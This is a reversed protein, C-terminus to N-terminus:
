FFIFVLEKKSKNRYYMNAYDISYLFSNNMDKIANLIIASSGGASVGVELIKKPKSKRIIGNLLARQKYSMESVTHNGNNYTRDNLIDNIDNLYNTEFKELEFFNM